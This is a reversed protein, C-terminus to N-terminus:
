VSCGWSECGKKMPTEARQEDKHDEESGAGASGHRKHQPGQRQVCYRWTIDSLLPTSFTLCDTM